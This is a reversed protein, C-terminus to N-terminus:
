LLVLSKKYRKRFKYVALRRALRKSIQRRAYRKEGYFEQNTLVIDRIVNPVARGLYLDIAAQTQEAETLDDWYEIDVVYQDGSPQAYRNKITAM